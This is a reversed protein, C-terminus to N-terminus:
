LEFEWFLDFLFEIAWDRWSVNSYVWLLRWPLVASPLHCDNSREIVADFLKSCLQHMLVLTIQRQSIILHAALKYSNVCKQKKDTASILLSNAAIMYLVLACFTPVSAEFIVGSRGTSWPKLPLNEACKDEDPMGALLPRFVCQSLSLTISWELSQYSLFM